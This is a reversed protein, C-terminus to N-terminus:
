ISTPSHCDHPFANQFAPIGLGICDSLKHFLPKVQACSKHADRILSLDFSVSRPIFLAAWLLLALAPM